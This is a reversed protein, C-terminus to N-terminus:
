WAIGRERMWVMSRRMGERLEVAPAYGLEREARAVSCAITQNMESLVHLRQHYVGMSQLAADLGRAVASAFGPLRTRRHAVRIGLDREMTDEITAIIENMTYPRRDAIWYTRGAAAAVRECLLLGQCINDVYAMSRRNQGDGVLPVRGTRILTFFLSQRDPQNPGYFWPPRIVVTELDGARGAANVLEEAIQKSRGYGM